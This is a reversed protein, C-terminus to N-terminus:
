KKGNRSKLRELTEASVGALMDELTMGQILRRLVQSKSMGTIEVVQMIKRHTEPDSLWLERHSIEESKTM